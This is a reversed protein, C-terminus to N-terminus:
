KVEKFQGHIFQYEKNNDDSLIITVGCIDDFAKNIYKKALRKTYSLSESYIVCSDVITNEEYITLTYKM